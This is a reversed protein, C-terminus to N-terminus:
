QRAWEALEVTWRHLVKVHVDLFMSQIDNIEILPFCGAGCGITVLSKGCNLFAQFVYQDTPAVMSAATFIKRTTDLCGALIVAKSCIDFIM